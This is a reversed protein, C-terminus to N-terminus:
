SSARQVIGIFCDELSFPVPRLSQIQLKSDSQSYTQFLSQVQPIEQDPHDLVIHLRDGFISVRWPEMQTKLL